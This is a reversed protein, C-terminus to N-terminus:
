LKIGKLKDALPNLESKAQPRAQAQQMARQCERWQEDRQKRKILAAPRLESERITEIRVKM